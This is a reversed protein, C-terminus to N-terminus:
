AAAPPTIPRPSSCATGRFPNSRVTYQGETSNGGPSFAYGSTFATNGGEFDGNAVLNPAAAHASLAAAAALVFAAVAPLSRRM